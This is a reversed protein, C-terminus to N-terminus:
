LSLLYKILNRKKLPWTLECLTERPSIRERKFNGGLKRALNQAQKTGKNESNSKIGCGNDKISLTYWGQNEKGIAQVRKAGIAHKGVNCLAEELFQCLERKQETNLHQDEIPEFSRAKLKLNEFYPLDRKLTSTYVEYLLEHIPLKLNLKLGSILFLSEEQNLTESKLHEGIDRIEQNLRKLQSHLTDHPFDEEQVCRLTNALTQLPGNHIYTFTNEITRQREEIQSQLARDRQYFAFASLGVGNISLILLNPAVPIWWGWMFLLFSGGVLIISAVGVALLNKFASQTLRGIIISIFGWIIIWLYEWEKYWVKILRRQDLVASIIQSTAHAHFKVGYIHNHPKLGSVANTNIYDPVSPATMGILVIRSRFLEPKFDNTKIHNLSTFQFPEEGSRWNILTQVGGADVGVYGGSNPLIRSIEVSGFRMAERDHIGNELSIGKNLLYTEALRLSLSFKYSQDKPSPTSLLLRRTNGDRDLLVDSFGVRNPPVNPPPTYEPPLVKEIAILNKNNKLVDVLQRRGPEVPINRVLDLGIVTPQYNQVKTILAAIERDPIPYTGLSKIDDENIGIITIRNDISESPRLRFFNDLAMWELPQLLGNLRAIAVVTTVALGPLAGTRWISIEKKIKTWITGSNKVM